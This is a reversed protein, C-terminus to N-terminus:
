KKNSFQNKCRDILLSAVRNVREEVELQSQGSASIWLRIGSEGYPKVTQVRAEIAPQWLGAILPIEDRELWHAAPLVYDALAATPTMM